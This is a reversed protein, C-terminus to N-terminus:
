GGRDSARLPRTGSAIHRIFAAAAAVPDAAEGMRRVLASGIIAADAIRSVAAVQEATAIGFGAAVPLTSEARIVAIARELRAQDITGREGTVGIRALVYIFGTCLRAIARARSPETTPAILMTLTLGAADAMRRLDPAIALDVDPVILGDFGAAAAGTLFSEAGMREVISMSVMAVLGLATRPRVRAVVDFLTRPTAGALLAEHMSAAIVPGDAIPDSFPFGIEIVSAGAEELAPIVRATVDISPYGGTIFPM